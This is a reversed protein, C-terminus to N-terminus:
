VKFASTNKRKFAAPIGMDQRYRAVTRRSIEVGENRLMESLRSDTIPTTKDEDKLLCELRKRIDEYTLNGGCGNSNKATFFYRLEFVGWVCQLYKANITRGVTSEHMDTEQAVQKMTLPKIHSKGKEFFEGQKDIICESIKRIANKRLEICKILWQGSDIRSQIFKKAEINIDEKIVKRYYSCINVLPFAEENILVELRNNIKKVICDPIIYKVDDSDFFERGPKPELKKIIEYIGAIKRASLGTSRSIQTIKNAALSDLYNDVLMFVNEDMIDMQRLQIALCEKLNRACVGPPDFTQLAKLVKDLKKLPVNFYAAIEPLGATLYGNEDVNDIIHGGLIRFEEDLDSTNLQFMLHEKLSLRVSSKDVTFDSISEIIDIGPLGYQEGKRINDDWEDELHGTGHSEHEDIESDDAAELAPNTEMEEEVYEFLEQSGIGLIELAQKVQPTLVLKQSQVLNLDFNFNM